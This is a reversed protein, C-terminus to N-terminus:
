YLTLNSSISYKRHFWLDFLLSLICRMFIYRYVGKNAANKVQLANRFIQFFEDNRQPLIQVSIGGLAFVSFRRNIAAYGSFIKKLM